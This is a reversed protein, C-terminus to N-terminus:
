QNELKKIEAEIQEQTYNDPFIFERNNRNIVQAM